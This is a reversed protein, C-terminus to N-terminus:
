AYFGRSTAGYNMDQLSTRGYTIGTVVKETGQMLPLSDDVDCMAKMGVYLNKMIREVGNMYTLSKKYRCKGLETLSFQYLTYLEKAIDYQHNLDEQLRRLIAEIHDLTSKVEDWNDNKYYERADNMYTFMMDYLVVILESRNGNIIRAKYIDKEERTM